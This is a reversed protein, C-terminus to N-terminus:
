ETGRKRKKNKEQIFEVAAKARELKHATAPLGKALEGMVAMSREWDKVMEKHREGEGGDNALKVEKGVGAGTAEVGDMADGDGSGPKINTHLVPVDPLGRARREEEGEKTIQELLKLDKDVERNLVKEYRRLARDPMARRQQSVKLTAAEIDTYLAQLRAHLTRDYPEFEDTEAKLMDIMSPASNPKATTSTSPADLGNISISPAAFDFTRTIYEMVLEEVKKRLPDEMEEEEEEQAMGAAGGGKGDTGAVPGGGASSRTRRGRGGKKGPGPVAGDVARGAAPPLHADIRERANKVLNDHIFRLDDISDLQVKRLIPPNAM